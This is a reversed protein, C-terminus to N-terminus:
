AKQSRAAALTAVDRAARRSRAEQSLTPWGSSERFIEGTAGRFERAARRRDVAPTVKEVHSQMLENFDSPLLRPALGRAALANFYAEDKMIGDAPYDALEYGEAHIGLCHALEHALLWPNAYPDWATPTIIDPDPAALVCIPLPELLSCCRQGAELLRGNVDIFKTLALNHATAGGPRGSAVEELDKASLVSPAVLEREDPFIPTIHVRLRDTRLTEEIVKTIHHIRERLAPIDAISTADKKFYSRPPNKVGQARVLDPSAAAFALAGIFRIPVHFHFVPGRREIHCVGFRSRFGFTSRYRVGERFASAVRVEDSPAIAAFGRPPRANSAEPRAEVGAVRAVAGRSARHVLPQSM